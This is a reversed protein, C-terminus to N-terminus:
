APGAATEEQPATAARLSARLLDKRIKGAGSVPLADPGITVARPAKYTALRSRCLADLSAKTVDPTRAVVFAHVREGWVPDPEAVVAVQIVGPHQAIVDEVEGASVNEGGTVIMDKLRDTVFLYGDADMVGIDGTRLWGDRMAEASQRPHGVYGDFLGETRACIEGALGRAMPRGDDDMIELRVGPAARGASRLRSAGAEGPAHDQPLLCTLAGCAETQGYFQNLRVGPLLELLRNLTAASIPSAGYAINRLRSLDYRALDDQVVLWNIMTPVLNTMTCQHRSLGELLGDVSFAPLFCHSGGSVTMAYSGTFGALHFLPAVHLIRPEPGPDMVICATQVTNAMAAHSLAVCKPLGTTGGSPVIAWVDRPDAEVPEGARGQTILDEYDLAFMPRRSPPGWYVFRCDLHEHLREVMAAQSADFCLVACPCTTFLQVLEEFALRHNMPMMPRGTLPTALTLEVYELSNLGLLAIRQDRQPALEVLSAALHRTRGLTQAWSFRRVDDLTATREPWLQATRFLLNNLYM